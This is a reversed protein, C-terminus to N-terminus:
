TMEAILQSMIDAEENIPSFIGNFKKPRGTQGWEAENWKLDEWWKTEGKIVKLEESSLEKQSLVKLKPCYYFGMEELSEGIFLGNSISILEPLFVLFLKRLKPLFYKEEIKASGHSILTRLRPCDEVILEELM